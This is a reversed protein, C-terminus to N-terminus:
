TLVLTDDDFDQLTPMGSSSAQFSLMLRESAVVVFTTVSHEGSSISYMIIIDVM